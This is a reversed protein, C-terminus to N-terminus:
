DEEPDDEEGEEETGDGETLPDDDGEDPREGPPAGQGPESTPLDPNQPNQEPLM